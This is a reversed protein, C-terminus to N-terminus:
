TTALPAPDGDTDGVVAWVTKTGDGHATWSWDAALAGVLVLGRGHESDDDHPPSAPTGLAGDRVEVLVAPGLRGVRYRIETGPAHRVANALLEGAVLCVDAALGTLGWERLAQVTAARLGSIDDPAPNALRAAWRVSPAPPIRPPPSTTLMPTPKM